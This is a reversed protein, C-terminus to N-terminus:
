GGGGRRGRRGLGCVVRRSRELLRLAARRVLYRAPARERLGVVGFAFASAEEEHWPTTPAVARGGRVSV